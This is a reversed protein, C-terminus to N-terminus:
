LHRGRRVVTANPMRGGRAMARRQARNPKPPTMRRQLEEMQKSMEGIREAMVRGLEHVACGLQSAMEEPSPAEKQDQDTDRDASEM